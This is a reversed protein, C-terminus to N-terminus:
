NEFEDIIDSLDTLEDEGSEMKLKLIKFVKSVKTSKKDLIGAAMEIVAKNEASLERRRDQIEIYSALCEQVKKKDNPDIM